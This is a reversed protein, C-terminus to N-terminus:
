FKRIFDKNERDENKKKKGEGKERFKWYYISQVSIYVTNADKCHGRDSVPLGAGVDM